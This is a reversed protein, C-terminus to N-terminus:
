QAMRIIRVIVTTDESAMMIGESTNIYFKTKTDVFPTLSKTIFDKNVFAEFDKGESFISLAEHASPEGLTSTASIYSGTSDRWLKIYGDEGCFPYVKDVAEMLENPTYDYQDFDKFKDIIGDFGCKMFQLNQVTIIFDDCIWRTTRDSVGVAVEHGLCIKAIAVAGAYPIIVAPFDFSSPAVHKYMQYGDSSYIRIYNNDSVITIGSVFTRFSDTKNSFETSKKLADIFSPSVNVAAESRFGIIPFLDQAFEIKYKSKSSAISLFEKGEPFKIEVIEDQINNCAANFLKYEMHLNFPECKHVAPIIVEAQVEGNTCLMRLSSEMVEIYVDQMCPLVNNKQIVMGIKSLAATVQAKNVKIVKM